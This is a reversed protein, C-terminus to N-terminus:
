ISLMDYISEVELKISIDSKNCAFIIYNKFNDEIHHINNISCEHKLRYLKSLIM